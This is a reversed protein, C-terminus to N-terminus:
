RARQQLSTRMWRIRTMARRSTMTSTLTWRSAFINKLDQNSHAFPVVGEKTTFM